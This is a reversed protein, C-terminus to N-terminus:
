KAGLLQLDVRCDILSLDLFELPRAFLHMSTREVMVLRNRKEFSIANKRM